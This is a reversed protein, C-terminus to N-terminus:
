RKEWIDLLQQKRHAAFYTNATILEQIRYCGYYVKGMCPAPSDVMRLLSMIPETLDVIAEVKAWFEDSNILHRVRIADDRVLRSAEWEQWKEDAVLQKLKVAMKALRILMLFNTGFRTDGSFHCQAM